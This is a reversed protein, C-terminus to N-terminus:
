KKKRFLWKPIQEGLIASSFITNHEIGDFIWYRTKGITSVERYFHDDSAPPNETDKNGHILWIPITKLKEVQEFQPIGSLSVGAAFLEPRSSLVNIVSSGGMSFGVAYIRKEDVPLVQKLSDILQLASQLGPQPISTLVKRTSDMLYNSSRGPFQPVVIFAKYKSLIGPQAWLKPLVGMQKANDTGTAGSGHFVVVLPYKETDNPAHVPKLLRYKIPQTNKGKFTLAEFVDNDISKIKAIRQQSALTDADKKITVLGFEEKQGYCSVSVSFFVCVFIFLSVSRM